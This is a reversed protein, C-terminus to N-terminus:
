FKDRMLVPLLELPGHPGRVLYMCTGTQLPAQENQGSFLVADALICIYGDVGPIYNRPLNGRPPM